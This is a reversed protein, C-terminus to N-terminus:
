LLTRFNKSIRKNGAKTKYGRIESFHGVRTHRNFTGRKLEPIFKQQTDCNFISDLYAPALFGGLSKMM